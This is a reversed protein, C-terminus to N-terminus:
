GTLPVFIEVRTGAPENRADRLDTIAVSLKSNNADNLIRLRDETIKMGMSRHKKLPMTRRIEAAKERGIGNDTITCILFNNESHLRITLKGKVPKPNLGHLIANEVYPQMLLPPMIDYDPDVSDDVIVEYDFKEEFRMQELELYLKLAEIDEGVTVTPKESNNLIIRVLRAFKNLYKIAEDSRTNFIYHQISNLSNFIFHPNMQARLAKLEIKSMEVKREYELRQKKKINYIRVMFVAYIIAFLSLASLLIFWWTMYFPSKIRFTFSTEEKNWVGENNGSRIKFTYLGPALNTYKIYNETSPVSWNKDQELGVLRRQYLVKDPNTLCIGRYYFAITNYDSPLLASDALLTDENMLRISQIITKNPVRNVKRNFPQHRVLGSVTGFWLTGDRDEWIGNGNCEVGSFGESRGFSALEVKGTGLYKQLDLRNIGQNTGIWLYSRDRTIELSYVLESNLGDQDSIRRLRGTNVDLVLVGNLSAAFIHGGAHRLMFFTEENLNLRSSLNVLSDGELRQLGAKFTGVYLRGADDECFGYVTFDEKSRIPYFKTVPSGLKWTLRCIGNTGGLWINGNRDEHMVDIDGRFQAPLRVTTFVGDRFQLLTPGAGFLLRGSRDELASRCTNGPVGQAAGYRTFRGEDQRFIGSNQTTVWLNDRRDRLIQFVFAGGLGSEKDYTSFSNDRYMYLGRHTGVWMNKERDSIICRVQNSNNDHGINYYDFTKGDFRLLGSQSGIWLYRNDENHLAEVNNDILGNSEFYNTIRGTGLDYFSLGGQTGIVLQNGFRKVCNVKPSPLGQAVSIVSFTEHGFMVLGRDTGAFIVTTDPNFLASIRYGEFRKVKKVEGNRYMYLGRPTGIYMAHHYGRCFSTIAPRLYDGFAHFSTIKKGRLISLGKSTGAFIAGDQAASVANVNHDILGDKRNYNTFVKGDFRSLGGYGGSWLYGNSDQDMCFVQVFPLGSEVSYNKFFYQQAWGGVPMVAMVIVVAFPLARRM